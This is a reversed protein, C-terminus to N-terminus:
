NKILSRQLLQLLRNNNNNNFCMTNKFAKRYINNNPRQRVSKCHLHNGKGKNRSLHRRTNQYINDEVRGWERARVNKLLFYIEAVVRETRCALGEAFRQKPRVRDPAARCWRGQVCARPDTKRCKKGKKTTPNQNQNKKNKLPLIVGYGTFVYSYCGPTGLPRPAEKFAPSKRHCRRGGLATRGEGGGAGRAAGTGGAPRCGRARRAAAWPLAAGWGRCREGQGTGARGAPTAAPAPSRAGRAGARGSAREGGPPRRHAVAGRRAAPRPLPGPAPPPPRVPRSM